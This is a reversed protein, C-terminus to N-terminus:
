SKSGTKALAVRVLCSFRDGSCRLVCDCLHDEKWLGFRRLTLNDPGGAVPSCSFCTNPTLVHWTKPQVQQLAFNAVLCCYSIQESNLFLEERSIFPYLFEYLTQVSSHEKTQSWDMGKKDAGCPTADGRRAKLKIRKRPHTDAQPDDDEQQSHCGTNM